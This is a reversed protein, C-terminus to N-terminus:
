GGAARKTENESTAQKEDKDQKFKEPPNKERWAPNMVDWIKHKDPDYGKEIIALRNQLARKNKEMDEKERRKKDEDMRRNAEATARLFAQDSNETSKKGTTKDPNSKEKRKQLWRNFHSKVDKIDIHSKKGENKCSTSFDGLLGNLDTDTLKYQKKISTTWEVDEQAEAIENDIRCKNQNNGAVIKEKPQLVEPIPGEVMASDSVPTEQIETAIDDVYDPRVFRQIYEEYPIGQSEAEARRVAEWRAAAAKRAAEQRRLRQEEMKQMQASLEIHKFKRENNDDIFVEFLGFDEIVSKILNESERLDFRLVDLDYDCIYTDSQRLREMLMFYVGYGAAGHDIRLRILNDENRSNAAHPFFPQINKKASM